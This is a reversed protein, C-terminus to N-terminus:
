ENLFNNNFLSQTSLDKKVGSYKILMDRVDKAVEENVDWDALTGDDNLMIEKILKLEAKTRNIEVSTGFRKKFLEAAEDPHEFAYAWGERSAAIFAKLSSGKESIAKDSAVLTYGYSRIGASDYSLVHPEKGKETITVPQGTSFGTVADVEGLLLPTLDFRYPVLKLSTLPVNEKDLYAKLLIEATDGFAVAVTKGEFDAPKSIQRGQLSILAHPSRRHVAAVAKIPLGENAALVVQEFGGVQGVDATGNLVDRIPNADLGGPYVSMDLGHNQYFGKDMATWFGLQHADPIWHMKLTMKTLGGTKSADKKSCGMTLASVTALMLVAFRSLSKHHYM